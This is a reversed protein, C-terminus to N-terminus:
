ASLESLFGSLLQHNNGGEGAGEGAGEGGGEGRGEGGSIRLNNHNEEQSSNWNIKGKGDM